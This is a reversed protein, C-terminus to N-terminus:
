DAEIGAVHFRNGVTCGPLTIEVILRGNGALGSRYRHTLAPFHCAVPRSGPAQRVQAHFQLGVQQGAERRVNALGDQAQLRPCHPGNRCAAESSARVAPLFADGASEATRARGHASAVPM